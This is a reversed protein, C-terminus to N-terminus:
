IFVPADINMLKGSSLQPIQSFENNKLLDRM